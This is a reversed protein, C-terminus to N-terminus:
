PRQDVVQTGDRQTVFTGDRQIVFNTTDVGSVLTFTTATEPVIRRTYDFSVDM